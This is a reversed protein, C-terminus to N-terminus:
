RSSSGRDATSVFTDFCRNSLHTHTQCLALDSAFSTTKLDILPYRPSLIQIRTVCWTCNRCSAVFIRTKSWTRTHTSRHPSHLNHTFTHTTPRSSTSPFTRLTTPSTASNREVVRPCQAVRVISHSRVAAAKQGNWKRQYRDLSHGAATMLSRPFARFPIPSLVPISSNDVLQHQDPEHDAEQRGKTQSTDLPQETGYNTTLWISHLHLGGPYGMRCSCVASHFCFGFLVIM